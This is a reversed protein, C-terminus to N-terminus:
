LCPSTAKMEEPNNGLTVGRHVWATSGGRPAQGSEQSPHPLRVQTHINLIGPGWSNEHDAPDRNGM